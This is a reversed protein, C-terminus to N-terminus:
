SDGQGGRGRGRRVETRATGWYRVINAHRLAQMVGIEGQLHSLLRETDENVAFKGGSPCVPVRKAAMLEGTATNLGLYVRGFAGYGLLEGQLCTLRAVHQSVFGCVRVCARAFADCVSVQVLVRVSAMLVLASRPARVRECIAVTASVCVCM